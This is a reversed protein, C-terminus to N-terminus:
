QDVEIVVYIIISISVERIAFLHVREIIDEAKGGAYVFCYNCSPFPFKGHVLIQGLM